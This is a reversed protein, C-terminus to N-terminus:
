HRLGHIRLQVCVRTLEQWLGGKEIPPPDSLMGVSPACIYDSAHQNGCFLCEPLVVTVSQSPDHQETHAADMDSQPETEMAVAAEDRPSDSQLMAEASQLWLPTDDSDVDKPVLEFVGLSRYQDLKEGMATHWAHARSSSGSSSPDALRAYKAIHEAREQAYHKDEETAIYEALAYAIARSAVCEAFRIIWLDIADARDAATAFDQYDFACHLCGILGCQSSIADLAFAPADALIPEADVAAPNEGTLESDDTATGDHSGSSWAVAHMGLFPMSSAGRELLMNVSQQAGARGFGAPANAADGGKLAETALLMQLAEALVSEKGSASALQKGADANGDAGASATAGGDDANLNVAPRKSTGIKWERIVAPKVGKLTSKGTVKLYDRGQLVFDRQGDTASKPIPISATCTICKDITGGFEPSRCIRSSCHKCKKKTGDGDRGDRKNIVPNVTQGQGHPLGLNLARQCFRNVFEVVDNLCPDMDAMKDALHSRLKGLKSSDNSDPISDLLLYYFSAPAAISNTQIQRWKQLLITSHEAFADYTPNATLKMLQVEKLLQSQAMVSSSNVGHTLVWRLLGNGDRQDGIWFRERIHRTDSESFAGSLDISNRVVYYLVTNKYWWEEAIQGFVRYLESNSLLVGGKAFQTAVDKQTPPGQDEIVQTLRLRSALELLETNWEITSGFRPKIKVKTTPLKDIDVQLQHGRGSSTPAVMHSNVRTDTPGLLLQYLSGRTSSAEGGRDGVQPTTLM